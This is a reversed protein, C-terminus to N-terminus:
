RGLAQEMGIENSMLYFDFTEGTKALEELRQNFKCLHKNFTPVLTLLNKHSFAPQIM